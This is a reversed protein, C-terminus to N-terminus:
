TEDVRSAAGAGLEGVRCGKHRTYLLLGTSVISILVTAGAVILLTLLILSHVRTDLDSRTFAAIGTIALAFALAYLTLRGFRSIKRTIDM